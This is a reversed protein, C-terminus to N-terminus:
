ELLSKLAVDKEPGNLFDFARFYRPQDEEKTAPDKMIKVLLEPTKKSRSRWLIDRGAESKWPESAKALYADLFADWQKDAGIGLAELYWRDKGDHQLALQAWLEAAAPSKSHRLSIALERRVEPATDAAVAALKAVDLGIERAIRVGTMRVDSEKAALAIDVAEQGEGELRALAWVARAKLRPDTTHEALDEIPHHAKEGM